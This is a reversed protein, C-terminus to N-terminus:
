IGRDLSPKEGLIDEVWVRLIEGVSWSASICGRPLHPYDGDFLESVGGIGATTTLHEILPFLLDKAISLNEETRGHVKLYATIFHGIFWSWVTGQHAASDRSYTSGDYIGKYNSDAPDLSRLGYPTLLKEEVIRVIAMEQKPSFISYPLSVAFIQNPRITIDPQCNFNICDYLCNYEPNWFKTIISEQCKKAKYAYNKSEEKYGFLKSLNEMIKLANYWLVNVEVPKGQRPTVVWDGIKADMWTLQVNPEGASILYDKTDLRINYRTGQTYWEIIIQLQPYLQEKVFYSDKTYALYKEIAYFLWLTADVSNYEVDQSYDSFRNPIMGQDLTAIFTKLTNRATEYRKTVLMLGPLAILANRGCDGFWHYGGIITKGGTSRRDVIFQDAAYILEPPIDSPLFSNLGLQKYRRLEKEKVLCFDPINNIEETSVAITIRDGACLPVNLVGPNYQDEIAPFGRMKEMYYHYNYYWVDTRKYSGKVWKIWVPQAGPYAQVIVGDKIFRQHFLWDDNGKTEAHFDRHNVLFALQLEIDPSEYGLQYDILLLNARYTLLVSKTLTVNNFKYIWVPFPDLNFESIYKYGEPSVSIDSWQNTSLKVTENNIKVLEDIRSFVLTRQTPPVLSAILLGHYRRTNAGSITSSAYSGLGNTIIWELSIAKDLNNADTIKIMRSQEGILNVSYRSIYSLM